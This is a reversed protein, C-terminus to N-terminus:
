WFEKFGSFPNQLLDNLAPPSICLPPTFLVSVAWVAGFSVILNVGRKPYPSSFNCVVVLATVGNAPIAENKAHSPAKSNGFRAASTIGKSYREGLAIAGSCVSSANM